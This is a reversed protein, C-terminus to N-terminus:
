GVARWQAGAGSGLLKVKKCKITGIVGGHAVPRWHVGSGLLKVKKCKITGIMGDGHAVTGWCTVGSGLLKVKKCKITGIVEACRSSAVHM